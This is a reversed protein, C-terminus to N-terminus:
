EKFNESNKALQKKNKLDQFLTLQKNTEEKSAEEKKCNVKKCCM